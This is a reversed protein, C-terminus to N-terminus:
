KIMRVRIGQELTERVRKAWEHGDGDCSSSTLELALERTGWDIIKAWYLALIIGAIRSRDMSAFINDHIEVHKLLNDRDTIYMMM